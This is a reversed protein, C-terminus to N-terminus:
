AQEELKVAQTIETSGIPTEVIYRLTHSGTLGAPFRFQAETTGRRNLRGAFLVRPRAGDALEVRASAEGAIADNKSDTVILRVAAAGGALYSQQAMVHLVPMRLIQSISETGQAAADQAEAYHFRYRVRQWVVEDVPPAKSLALEANWTGATRTLTVHRETNALVADEPDLVQVSLEGEGAHLGRYPIAVHLTGGTYTAAVSDDAAAQADNLFPLLLASAIAVTGALFLFTKSTKQM